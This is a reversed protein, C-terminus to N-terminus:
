ADVLLCPPSSHPVRLDMIQVHHMQAVDRPFRSQMHWFLESCSRLLQATLHGAVINECCIVNGAIGVYM